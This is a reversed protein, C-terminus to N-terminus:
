REDEASHYNVNSEGAHEINMETNLEESIMDEDTDSTTVDLGENGEDEDANIENEDASIEDEDTNIEDKDTNIEIQLDENNNFIDTTAATSGMSSETTKTSKPKRKSTDYLAIRDRLLSILEVIYLYLISCISIAPTLYNM